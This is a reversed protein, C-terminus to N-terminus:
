RPVSGLQFENCTVVSGLQFKWGVLRETGALSCSVSEGSPPLAYHITYQTNADPPPVEAGTSTMRPVLYSSLRNCTRSPSMLMPSSEFYGRGSERVIITM